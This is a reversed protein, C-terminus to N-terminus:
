FQQESNLKTVKQLLESEERNMAHWYLLAAIVPHIMEHIANDRYITSLMYFIYMLYVTDNSLTIIM